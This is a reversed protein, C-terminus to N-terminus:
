EQPKAPPYVHYGPIKLECRYLGYSRPQDGEPPPSQATIYLTRSHDGIGFVCNTPGGPTSLFALPRGEPDFVYIGAEAGGGATAYINGEADLTMGDIGRKNPGFDFLVRKNALTGDAQIDFALLQHAGAPNSNNDAVYM